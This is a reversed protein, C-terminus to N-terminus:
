AEPNDDPPCPLTPRSASAYFSLSTKSVQLSRTRTARNVSGESPVLAAPQVQPRVIVAEPTVDKLAGVVFPAAAPPNVQPLVNGGQTGEDESELRPIVKGERARAGEEIRV